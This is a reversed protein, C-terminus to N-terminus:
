RLRRPCTARRRLFDWRDLPSLTPEEAEYASTTWVESRATVVLSEHSRSCTSTTCRTASATSTSTSPRGARSPRSCSRPAASATAICRAEAAARHVGRQDARRVRLPHHARGDAVNSSSRRRARSRPSPYRVPRSSRRRSRTGPGTSAPSCSSSRRPSAREPSTTSRATSWTPASGASFGSRRDRRDGAIRDVATSRRPPLLPGGAPLRRLSGAGRRDALPEFSAGHRRVYAEFASCSKLLAILEHARM